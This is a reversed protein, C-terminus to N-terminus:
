GQAYQAAPNLFPAFQRDYVTRYSSTGTGANFIQQTRPTTYEVPQAARQVERRDENTEGITANLRNIYPEQYMRGLAQVEPSVGGWNTDWDYSLYDGNQPDRQTDYAMVPMEMPLWGLGQDQRDKIFEQFNEMVPRATNPDINLRGGPGQPILADLDQNNFQSVYPAVPQGISTDPPLPQQGEQYFTEGVSTPRSTPQPRFRAQTSLRGFRTDDIQPIYDLAM